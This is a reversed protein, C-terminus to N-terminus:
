VVPLMNMYYQADKKHLYGFRQAPPSILAEAPMHRHQAWTEIRCISARVNAFRYHYKWSRGGESEYIQKPELIQTLHGLEVIFWDKALGSQFIAFSYTGTGMLKDCGIQNNDLSCYIDNRARGGISDADTIRIIRMAPSIFAHQKAAEYTVAMEDARDEATTNPINNVQAEKEAIQTSEPLITNAANLAAQARQQAWKRNAELKNPYNIKDQKYTAEVDKMCIKTGYRKVYMSTWQNAKHVLSCKFHKMLEAHFTGVSPEKIVTAFPHKIELEPTSTKPNLRFVAEFEGYGVVPQYVTEGNYLLTKMEEHHIRNRKKTIPEM